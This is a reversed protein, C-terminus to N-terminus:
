MSGWPINLTATAVTRNGTRLRRAARRSAAPIRRVTPVPIRWILRSNIGAAANM